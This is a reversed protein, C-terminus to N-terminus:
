FSSAFRLRVEKDEKVEEVLREWGDLAGRAGNRIFHGQVAAMSVRTGNEVDREVKRMLEEKWERLTGEEVGESDESSKSYFRQYLEGVQWGTADSVYVKLDVRGPRILAPDLRDIHNTTLFLIRQSTSSAVGDLANLLGSFTVNANFGQETSRTRANGEGTMSTATPSSFAADIDELLVLSREPANALLHNLKDDTLGRESLNLVCINYELSGALAQIFSSKGSGPPGHLLYGRRYPIGRKFYWSGRKMFAEVDGVIREKVGKDLVVSELARRMRPRGFPRWETGWATYIVTRGLQASQALSRAETLLSSFLQRDRSLTTLTVTEWPTGSNLDLMNTARERKVQFWAKRYRFYHTGPGPVLSFEASSSGDGRQEYKTEVALEHSKLRSALGDLDWGIRRLPKQSLSAQKAAQQSMWQLFWLYSADKSSIELSVLLRRQALTGIQVASRRLFTLGVGVAMLGFGASFIPNSDLMSAIWGKNASSAAISDMGGSATSVTGNSSSPTSPVAHSPNTASSTLISELEFPLKGSSTSSSSM